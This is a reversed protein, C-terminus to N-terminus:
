KCVKKGNVIYIGAPAQRLSPYRRGQLDYVPSNNNTVAGSTAQQIGTLTADLYSFSVVGDADIAINYIPRSLKGGTFLTAAPTTDDTFSDHLVGNLTCPYLDNRYGEFLKSLPMDASTKTGEKVNDAPVFQMRPHNADVNVRNNRWATADYDVHTIYMGQGMTSTHWTNKNRNELLYYEKANNPNRLVYARPLDNGHSGDLAGLQAFRAEDNLEEVNLWGMYSREYASYEVPRYGNQYYQGYDLLDWYGMVINQTLAQTNYFDPLGLAHTFEHAFLAIGEMNRSVIDNENKGYNQVLENGVFYSNVRAKGDNVSFSTESFKAWIYDTYNDEFASQEGPGAFMFAVIPVNTTGETCFETFDVTKSAEALAERVFTNLNPDISGNSGDKGYYARPNALKVHAVVKFTPQFLGNSQAVFYDRVSGRAAPEDRYGKENFFRTVKETTITDQFTVDAFDVMVVPLTVTGISKVIGNASTGYKGLGDATSTSISQTSVGSVEHHLLPTAPCCQEMVEAAQETTLLSKVPQLATTKTQAAMQNTALRQSPMLNGNQLTAYYYHGDAAPLVAHGDTTSYLNYRGNGVVNITLKTGDPQQHTLTRRVPFTAHAALGVGLTLCITSFIRHLQLQM